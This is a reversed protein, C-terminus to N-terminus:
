KPAGVSAGDYFIQTGIGFFQKKM